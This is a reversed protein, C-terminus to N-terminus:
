RAAARLVLESRTCPFGLLTPLRCLPYIFLKCLGNVGSGEVLEMDANLRRRIEAKVKDEKLTVSIFRGLEKFHDFQLSSPDAAVNVIFKLREGNITLEPDFPCYVTEGYREYEKRAEYRADFRKMAMCICKKPNAQLRYWKLFEVVTNITM